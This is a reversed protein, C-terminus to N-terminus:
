PRSFAIRVGGFVARGRSRYGFVDEYDEDALNEARLFATVGPALDAEGGLDVLVYDDLDVRFIQTAFTAPDFQGFVDDAQEGNYIVSANARVRGLDLAAAASAAHRPRRIEEGDDPDDAELYAYAADISLPGFSAALSTEVGERESRGTQNVAITGGGPAPASVIEGDLDGQFWSVDLRVRGTSVELGADRSRSTEPELEPNPAFTNSFGFLETFTPNIVGTGYSGHARVRLPGDVIVASATGRGTLANEFRSNADYRLAGSLFVRDALGIRQELVGSTQDDTRAFTSFGATEYRLEEREAAGSTVLDAGGLSWALSTEYVAKLRRGDIVTEGFASLFTNDTDTLAGDLRHTWAGGSLSGSLGARAYVDSQRSRDDGDQLVTEPIPAGDAGEAAGFGESDFETESRIFRVVGDAEIADTLGVRGSAAATWNRFGDDESGVLATNFGGTEYFSASVRGTARDTGGGVGLGARRTDFAGAEGLADVQLGPAGKKTEIAIAGGIAESGYLASQAGRAIEIREIDFAPVTEFSFAAAGAPDGAEIGDLFVLTQNAEAGRIRVEGVRGPGGAQNVALGPVFRLAEVAFAEGRRELDAADLVSVSAGLEDLPAPARSGIVVIVDETRADDAPAGRAPANQTAASQALAPAVLGGAALAAPALTLLTKM